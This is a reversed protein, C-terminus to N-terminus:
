GAKLGVMSLTNKASPARRATRQRVYPLRNEVAATPDCSFWIRGFRRTPDSNGFVKKLLKPETSFNRGEASRSNKTGETVEMDAFQIKAVSQKEILHSDMDIAEVIRLKNAHMTGLPQPKCFCCTFSVWPDAAILRTRSTIIRWCM